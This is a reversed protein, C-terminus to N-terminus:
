WVSTVDCMLMSYANGIGNSEITYPILNSDNLFLSLLFSVAACNSQSLLSINKKSHIDDEGQLYILNHVEADKRKAAM